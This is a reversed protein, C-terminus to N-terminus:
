KQAPDSAAQGPKPAQPPAFAPSSPEVQAQAQGPKLAPKKSQAPLNIPQEPEYSDLAEIIIKQMETDKSPDKGIKFDTGVGALKLLNKM